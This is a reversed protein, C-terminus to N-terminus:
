CQSVNLDVCKYEKDLAIIKQKRLTFSSQIDLHKCLQKENWKRSITVDQREWWQQTENVKLLFAAGVGLYLNRWRPDKGIIRNCKLPLSCSGRHFQAQRSSEPIKYDILFILGLHYVGSGEARAEKTLSLHHTHITIILPACAIM